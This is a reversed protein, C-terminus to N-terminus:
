VCWVTANVSFEAQDQLLQSVWSEWFLLIQLKQETHTSPVAGLQQRQHTLRERGRPTGSASVANPLNTHSLLKMYVSFVVSSVSTLATVASPTHKM